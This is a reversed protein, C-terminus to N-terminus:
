ADVVNDFPETRDRAGRHPPPQATMATEAQCRHHPTWAQSLLLEGAFLSSM